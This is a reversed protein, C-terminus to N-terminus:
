KLQELLKRLNDEVQYEPQNFVIQKDKYGVFTPVSKIDLTENDWMGNDDVDIDVIEIEPYDPAIKEILMATMKCQGCWEASFVALISKGTEVTSNLEQIDIRKM